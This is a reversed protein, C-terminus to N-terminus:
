ISGGQLSVQVAFGTSLSACNASSMPLSSNFLMSRRKSTEGLRPDAFAELRFSTGALVQVVTDHLDRALASRTRTAVAEQFARLATARNLAAVIETGVREGRQLDDFCFGPVDAAFMYSSLEEAQVPIVFGSPLAYRAVFEAGVPLASPAMWREHTGALYRNKDTRYIFPGDFRSDV